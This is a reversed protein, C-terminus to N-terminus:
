EKAEAKKRADEAKKRADEAKKRADEVKKIEEIKEFNEDKYLCISKYINYIYIAKDYDNAINKKINIYLVTLFDYILNDKNKNKGTSNKIIYYDIIGELSLEKQTYEDDKNPNIELNILINKILEKFFEDYSKLIDDFDKMYKINKSDVNSWSEIHKIINIVFDKNFIKAYNNNDQLKQLNILINLFYYFLRYLIYIKIRKIKFDDTLHNGKKYDLNVIRYINFKWILLVNSNDNNNTNASSSDLFYVYNHIDKINNDTLRENKIFNENYKEDNNILAISKNEDLESSFQVIKDLGTNEKNLIIAILKNELLTDSYCLFDIIIYSERINKINQILLIDGDTLLIKKINVDREKKTSLELFNNEDRSFVKKEYEKFMVSYNDLLKNKFVQQLNQFDYKM